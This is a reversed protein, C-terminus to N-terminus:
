TPRVTPTSIKSEKATSKTRSSIQQVPAFLFSLKKSRSNQPNSIGLGFQARTHEFQIIRSRINYNKRISCKTRSLTGSYGCSFLYEGSDHVPTICFSLENLTFQVSNLKLSHNFHFNDFAKITHLFHINGSSHQNLTTDLRM